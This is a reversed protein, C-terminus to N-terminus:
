IGVRHLGKYVTSEQVFSIEDLLNEDIYLTANPGTMRGSTLDLLATKTIGSDGIQRIMKM